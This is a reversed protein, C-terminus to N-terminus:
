SFEPFFISAYALFLLKNMRNKQTINGIFIVKPHKRM